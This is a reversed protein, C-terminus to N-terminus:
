GNTAPRGVADFFSCGTVDWGCDANPFASYRFVTSPQSDVSFPRASLAAQLARGSNLDQYVM